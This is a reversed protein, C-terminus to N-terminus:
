LHEPRIVWDVDYGYIQTPAIRYANSDELRFVYGLPGSEADRRRGNFRTQEWRRGLAVIEFEVFKGKDLDFEATGRIADGDIRGSYLTSSERGNRERTVDFSITSEAYRVNRLPTRSGQSSLMSGTLKGNDTELQLISVRGGSTGLSTRVKWTGTVDVDTTQAVASIAAGLIALWFSTLTSFSIQRMGLRKFSSLVRSWQPGGIFVDPSNYSLTREGDREQRRRRALTSMRSQWPACHPEITEDSRANENKGSM